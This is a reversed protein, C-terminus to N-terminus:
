EKLKSLAATLNHRAQLEFRGRFEDTVFIRPRELFSALVKARGVRFAADPVHGYEERIDADYRSFRDTAAGLISLDSDVVIAGDPDTSADPEVASHCTLMILRQVELPDPGEAGEGRGGDDHVQRIADTALSASDAENSKSTPDYVADHYLLALAVNSRNKLPTSCALACTIVDSVHEVNHYKRHPESYREILDAILRASVSTSSTDIGPYAALWGTEIAKYFPKFSM